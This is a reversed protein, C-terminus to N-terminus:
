RGKGKSWKHKFIYKGAGWESGHKTAAYNGAHEELSGGVEGGGTGEEKGKSALEKETLETRNSVVKPQKYRSNRNGAYTRQIKDQVGELEKELEFMHDAEPIDGEGVPMIDGDDSVSVSSSASRNRCNEVSVGITRTPKLVRKVRDRIQDLYTHAVHNPDTPSLLNLTQTNIYVWSADDATDFFGTRIAWTTTSPLTANPILSPQQQVEAEAVAISSSHSAHPQSSTTCQSTEASEMHIPGPSTLSSDLRTINSPRSTFTDALPAEVHAFQNSLLTSEIEKPSLKSLPSSPPYNLRPDPNPRAWITESSLPFPKPSELEETQLHTILSALMISPLVPQEPPNSDEQLTTPMTISVPDKLDLPVVRKQTKSIPEPRLHSTQQPMNTVRLKVESHKRAQDSNPKENNREEMTTAPASYGGARGRNSALPPSYKTLNVPFTQLTSRSKQSLLEGLAESLENFGKKKKLELRGQCEGAVVTKGNTERSTDIMSAQKVKHQTSNLMHLFKEKNPVIPNNTALTTSYECATFDVASENGESEEVHINPMDKQKLSPDINQELIVPLAITSDRLASSDPPQNELLHGQVTQSDVLHSGKTLTHVRESSHERQAGVTKTEHTIVSRKQPRFSRIDEGGYGSFRPQGNPKIEREALGKWNDWSWTELENHMRPRDKWGALRDVGQKAKWIHRRLVAHFNYEFPSLRLRRLPTSVLDPPSGNFLRKREDYTKRSLIPHNLIINYYLTLLHSNPYAPEQALPHSHFLNPTSSQIISPSSINASLGQTWLPFRKSYHIPATTALLHQAQDLSCSLELDSRAGSRDKGVSAEPKSSVEMDEDIFIDGPSQRGLEESDLEARLGEKIKELAYVKDNEDTKRAAHAAWAQSKMMSWVRLMSKGWYGDVALKVNQKITEGYYKGFPGYLYGM